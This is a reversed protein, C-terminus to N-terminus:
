NKFKRWVEKMGLAAIGLIVVGGAVLSIWLGWWFSKPEYRFIIEHEGQPVEVARFAYNALYIKKEQGDVYAKWGPYYTDSLFLFGDSSSQTKIKVEQDTYKVFQVSAALAGPSGWRTEEELWVTQKPDFDGKLLHRRIKEPTEMQAQGVMFTRPYYDFFEYPTPGSILRKVKGKSDFEFRAM